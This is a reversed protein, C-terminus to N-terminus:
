KSQHYHAKKLECFAHLCNIQCALGSTKALPHCRTRALEPLAHALGILPIDIRVSMAGFNFITVHARPLVEFRALRIPALDISLRLPRSEFDAGAVNRDGSAFGIRGAGAVCRAASDIDISYGAEFAHFVHCTGGDVSRDTNSM